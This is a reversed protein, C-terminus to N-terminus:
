LLNASFEGVEDIAVVLGEVGQLIANNMVLLFDNADVVLQVLIAIIRICGERLGFNFEASGEM